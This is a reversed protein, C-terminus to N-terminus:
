DRVGSSVAWRGYHDVTRGLNQIYYDDLNIYTFGHSVLGSDHMAQAQAKLKAETPAGSSSAGAVGAPRRTAAGNTSAQASGSGWQASVAAAVAIASAM